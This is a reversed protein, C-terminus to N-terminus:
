SRSSMVVNMDAKLLAWSGRLASASNAGTRSAKTSGATCIHLLLAAAISESLLYPQGQVVQALWWVADHISQLLCSTFYTTTQASTQTPLVQTINTKCDFLFGSWLVTQTTHACFATNYNPKKTAQHLRANLHAVATSNSTIGTHSCLESVCCHYKCGM